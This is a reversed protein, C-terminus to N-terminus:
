NVVVYQKQDSLPMKSFASVSVLLDIARCMESLLIAPIAETEIPQWGQATSSYFACAEIASYGQVGPYLSTGVMIEVKFDGFCRWLCDYDIKWREARATGVFPRLDIVFDVFSAACAPFYYERFAQRVPQTIKHRLIFAQWAEREQCEVLLPHWLRVIADAPVEWLKDQADRYQGQSDVVLARFEGATLEIWWILSTALKKGAQAEVLQEYWQLWEYRSELWYGTELCTALLVSSKKGPKLLSGMRLTMDPRAALGREAPKMDRELKKKVGAHRVKSITDRLAIVSEPTPVGAIAHGLAIALSQSPVSKAAGPALSVLPLLQAMLSGYWPEDRFAAVRAARALIHAEEITFAKDAAYPLQHQHIAQLYATAKSLSQFAFEVYAPEESLLAICDEDGPQYYGQTSLALMLCGKKSLFPFFAMEQTIYPQSAYRIATTECWHNLVEEGRYRALAGEQYSERMGSSPEKDVLRTLQECIASSHPEVLWQLVKIADDVRTLRTLITLATANDLAPTLHHERLLGTLHSFPFLSEAQQIIDSLLQGIEHPSLQQLLGEAPLTLLEGDIFHRALLLKVNLNDSM